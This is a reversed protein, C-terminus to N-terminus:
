RLDELTLGLQKLIDHLLGRGLDRPHMPVMTRRAGYTLMAHSGKGRRPEFAVPVGRERGLRRIRRVLEAGTMNRNRVYTHSDDLGTSRLPRARAVRNRSLSASYRRAKRM